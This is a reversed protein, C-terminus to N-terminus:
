IRHLLNCVPKSFGNVDAAHNASEFPNFNITKEACGMFNDMVIACDIFLNDKESFPFAFFTSGFNVAGM